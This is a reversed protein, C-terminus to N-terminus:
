KDRPRMEEPLELVPGFGCPACSRVMQISDEMRREGGAEVRSVGWGGGGGGSEVGGM